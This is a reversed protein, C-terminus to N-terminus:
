QTDMYVPKIWRVRFLKVQFKLVLNLHEDNYLYRMGRGCEVTYLGLAVGVSWQISTGMETGGQLQDAALMDSRQGHALSRRSRIDDGHFESSHLIPVIIQQVPVFEPDGVSGISVHCNDVGLSVHGGIFDCCEEHLLHLSICAYM